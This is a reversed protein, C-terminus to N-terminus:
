ILNRKEDAPDLMPYVRSPTGIKSIVFVAGGMGYTLVKRVVLNAEEVLERFARAVGRDSSGRYSFYDDLVIFSGEVLTPIVFKLADISSSYTDSDIFM